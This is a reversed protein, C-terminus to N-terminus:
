FKDGRGKGFEIARNVWSQPTNFKIEGKELFSYAYKVETCRLTLFNMHNLGDM